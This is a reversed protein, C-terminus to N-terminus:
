SKENDRSNYNNIKALVDIWRQTTQKHKNISNATLSLILMIYASESKSNHSHKLLKSCVFLISSLYKSLANVTHDKTLWYVPKRSIELLCNLVYKSEILEFLSPCIEESLCHKNDFHKFFLLSLSVTLKTGQTVSLKERGFYLSIIMGIKEEWCCCCM